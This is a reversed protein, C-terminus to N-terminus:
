LGTASQWGSEGGLMPGDFLSRFDQERAEFSRRAFLEHPVIHQYAAEWGRAHIVAVAHSDDVTAPRIRNTM